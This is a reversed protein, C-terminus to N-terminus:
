RYASTARGKTLLHRHVQAVDPAALEPPRRMRILVRVNTIQGARHRTTFILATLAHLLMWENGTVVKQANVPTTLMVAIVVGLV